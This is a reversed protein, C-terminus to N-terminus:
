DEGLKVPLKRLYIFFAFTNNLESWDKRIKTKVTGM